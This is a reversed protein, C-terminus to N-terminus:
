LLIFTVVWVKSDYTKYFFFAIFTIVFYVMLYSLRILNYTELFACYVKFLKTLFTMMLMWMMSVLNWTMIKEWQINMMDVDDDYNPIPDVQEYDNTENCLDNLVDVEIIEEVHLM